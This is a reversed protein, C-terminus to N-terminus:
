MRTTTYSPHDSTLSEYVFLFWQGDCSIHDYSLSLRQHPHDNTLPEVTNIFMIHESFNCINNCKPFHLNIYLTVSVNAQVIWNSCAPVNDTAVRIVCYNRITQLYIICNIHQGNWVKAGSRRYELMTVKSLVVGLSRTKSEHKCSYMSKM